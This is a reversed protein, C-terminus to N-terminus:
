LGQSGKAADGVEDVVRGVQSPDAPGGVPNSLQDAVKLAVQVPPRTRPLRATFASRGLGPPLPAPGTRGAPSGSVLRSPWRRATDPATDMNSRTVRWSPTATATTM